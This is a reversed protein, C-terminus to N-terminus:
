MREMKRQEAALMSILEANHRAFKRFAPFDAGVQSKAQEPTFGSALNIGELSLENIREMADCYRNLHEALREMAAATGSALSLHLAKGNDHVSQLFELEGIMPFGALDDAISDLVSELKKGLAENDRELSDLVRAIPREYGEPEEVVSFSLSMMAGSLYMDSGEIARIIDQGNKMQMATNHVLMTFPFRVSIGQDTMGEELPEETLVMSTSDLVLFCLANTIAKMSVPTSLVERIIRDEENTMAMRSNLMEIAVGVKAGSMCIELLSSVVRGILETNEKSQIIFRGIGNPRMGDFNPDESVGNYRAALLSCAESVSEGLTKAEMFVMETDSTKMMNQLAAQGGFFIDNIMLEMATTGGNPALSGGTGLMTSLRSLREKHDMGEQRDLWSMAAVIRHSFSLQVSPHAAIVDGFAGKVEAWKAALEKQGYAEINKQLSM